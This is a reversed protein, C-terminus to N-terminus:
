KAIFLPIHFDLTLVEIPFYGVELAQVMLFPELM